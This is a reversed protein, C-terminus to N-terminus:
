KIDVKLFAGKAPTPTTAAVDQMFKELAPESGKTFVTANITWANKNQTRLKTLITAAPDGVTPAGDSLLEIARPDEPQEPPADAPKKSFGVTKLAMEMAGGTNTAQDPVLANVWAIAEKRIADEAPRMSPIGPSAIWHPMVTSHYAIVTFRDTKALGQIANVLQLKAERIRNGQMSGSIDIVFCINGSLERNMWSSGPCDLDKWRARDYIGELWAPPLGGPRDKGGDSKPENEADFFLLETRRNEQEEKGDETKILNKREGCGIAKHDPDLWVLADIYADLEAKTKVNLQTRINLTYLNHVRKWFILDAIDTDPDEDKAHFYNEYCTKFAGIPTPKDPACSPWNMFESAWRLITEIDTKRNAEAIGKHQELVFKAWEEQHQELVLLTSTSRSTSLKQNSDAGSVRDTHSAVLLKQGTKKAYRLAAVLVTLGPPLFVASATTFRIRDCKLRIVKLPADGIIEELDDWAM